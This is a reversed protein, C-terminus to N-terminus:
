GGKPPSIAGCAVPLNEVYEVRRRGERGQKHLNARMGALVIAHDELPEIRDRPVQPFDLEVDLRDSKRTTTPFPELPLVTSGYASEGEERSHEVFGNGNDDEAGGPCAAEERGGTLYQKHIRNEELGSATIRVTLLDGALTIRALGEVGSDNLPRLDATHQAFMQPAAGGGGCGGEDGKEVTEGTKLAECGTAFALLLALLPSLKKM